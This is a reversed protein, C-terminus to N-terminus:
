DKNRCFRFGLSKKRLSPKDRGSKIKQASVSLSDFAGGITVKKEREDDEDRVGDECWEEVNGLVDFMGWSNPKLEAVPHTTNGSNEIGWLYSGAQGDEIWHYMEINNSTGKKRFDESATAFYLWENETPLRFGKSERNISVSAKYASLPFGVKKGTGEKNSYKIGSITYYPVLGLAESLKNCFIIADYWTVNEVPAKDSGRFTSYNFGMITEFLTQTCETSCMEVEPFTRLTKSIRPTSVLTFSNNGVELRRESTALLPGLSEATMGQNMSLYTTKESSRMCLPLFTILSKEYPNKRSSSKKM